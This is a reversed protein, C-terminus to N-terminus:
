FNLGAERAADALAQVRGHYLNGGRDFVVLEIGKAKAREAILKGVETAADINGGTSLKSKLEPELSSAAVLTHQETDDIVQAYIHQLSRFVALRPREASGQVGKRVRRHRRQVAEKRTLKM